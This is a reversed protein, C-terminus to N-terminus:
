LTEVAEARVAASELFYIPAFHAINKLAELISPYLDAEACLVVCCDPILKLVDPLESPAITVARMARLPITARANGRRLAIFVLNDDAHVLDECAEVSIQKVPHKPIGSSISLFQASSLPAVCDLRNQRRGRVIRRAIAIVFIVAVIEVLFLVYAM